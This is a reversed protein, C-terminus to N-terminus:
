PAGRRAALATVVRSLAWSCAGVALILAAGYYQVIVHPGLLEGLAADLVALTLVLAAMGRWTLAPLARGWRQFASRALLFGCALPVALAGAEVLYFAIRIWLSPTM